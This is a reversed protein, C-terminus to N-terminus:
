RNWYVRTMCIVHMHVYIGYTKVKTKKLPSLSIFFMRINYRLVLSHLIVSKITLAVSNKTLCIHKKEKGRLNLQLLTRWKNECTELKAFNPSRFCDWQKKYDQSFAYVFWTVQFKILIKHYLCGKSKPTSIFYILSSKPQHSGPLPLVPIVKLIRSTHVM